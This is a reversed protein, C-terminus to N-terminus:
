ELDLLDRVVEGAMILGAASPVFSISGPAIKGTEEKETMPKRPPEKSYVVKIKEIGKKRLEKRIVKALPCVSTDEIYATEFCEPHLKNGAGMSSIVPIGARYAQEIVTLKGTVTDICDLVYDAGSKTILDPYTDNPYFIPYIEVAAEPNVLAIREKMVEAKCRGIQRVDAVLQRNINSEAVEDHDVLVFHGIGARALAEAAFSGVGGVGFLLVKKKALREVNEWGILRATRSKRENKM